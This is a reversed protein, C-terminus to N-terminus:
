TGRVLKASLCAHHQFYTFKESVQGEKRTTFESQDSGLARQQSVGHSKVLIEREKEHVKGFDMLM